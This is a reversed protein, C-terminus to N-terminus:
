NDVIQKRKRKKIDERMRVIERNEEDDVMQMRKLKGIKKKMDEKNEILVKNDKGVKRMMNKKEIEKRKIESEEKKKM